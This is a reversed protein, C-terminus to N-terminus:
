ASVDDEVLGPLADRFVRVPVKRSEPIVLELFAEPIPRAFTSEQFERVFGPDIPDTLTAVAATLEGIVPNDAFSAFSDVLTLARTPDPRDAAFRRAVTSGMSHGVVVASEIQLTDLLARIDDGLDRTGYGSAPRESDGQGPFVDAQPVRGLIGLPSVEDPATQTYEDAFRLVEAARDGP